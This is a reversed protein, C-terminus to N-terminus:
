GKYYHKIGEERWEVGKEFDELKFRKTIRKGDKNVYHFEYTDSDKRLSYGKIKKGNKTLRNQCNEQNTVVTLNDHTNNTGDHDNHDIQQTSDFIDFDSFIVHAVIRHFWFAKGDIRTKMYQSHKGKPTFPVLDFAWWDNKKLGKENRKLKKYLKKTDFDYKLETELLKRYIVNSM